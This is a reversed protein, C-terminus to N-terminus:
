FVCIVKFSRTPRKWLKSPYITKTKSKSFPYCLSYGKYNAKSYIILTCKCYGSFNLINLAWSPERLTKQTRDLAVGRAASGIDTCELHKKGDPGTVWECIPPAPVDEYDIACQRPAAQAGQFLVSLGVLCVFLIFSKNM